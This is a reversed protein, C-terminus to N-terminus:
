AKCIVFLDNWNGNQVCVRVYDGVECPISSTVTCKSGHYLVKYKKPNIVEVIQSKFIRNGDEHKKIATKITSVISEVMKMIAERNEM